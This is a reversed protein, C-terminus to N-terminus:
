MVGPPPSALDVQPLATSRICRMHRDRHVLRLGHLSACAAILADALPIRATSLGSLRLAEEATEETIALVNSMLPRLRRWAQLAETAPRETAAAVSRCFEAVTPASVMVLADGVLIDRVVSGEPEGRFFALVASTDLLYGCDTPRETVLTRRRALMM